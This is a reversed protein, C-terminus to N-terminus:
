RRRVVLTPAVGRREDGLTVAHGLLLQQPRARRTLNREHLPVRKEIDELEKLNHNTSM